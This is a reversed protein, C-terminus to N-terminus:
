RVDKFTWYKNLFFNVVIGSLTAVLWTKHGHGLWPAVLASVGLGVGLAIASVTLFQAGERVAHGTSRFTWVR